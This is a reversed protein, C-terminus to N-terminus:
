IDAEQKIQENDSNTPLSEPSTRSEPILESVSLISGHDPLAKGASNFAGIKQEVVAQVADEVQPMLKAVAVQDPNDDLVEDITTRFAFRLDTNVNVKSIGILAAKEFYELPTDSGGHLSIFTNSDLNDRIRQLLELDLIKPVPYKVHM